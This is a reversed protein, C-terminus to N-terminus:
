DVEWRLKVILNFRVYGLPGFVDNSFGEDTEGGWVIVGPELEGGIIFYKFQIPNLGLGCSLDFGDLGDSKITEGLSIIPNRYEWTMGTMQFGLFLYNGVFTYHPTLYFNADMGIQWIGVGGRLAGGVLGNKQIPADILRFNLDYTVENKGAIKIDEYTVGFGRLGYFDDSKVLGVFPSVGVSRAFDAFASSRGSPPRYPRGYIDYYLSDQNPPRNLGTTDPPYRQKPPDPPAPVERSGTNDDSAAAMADSLKGRSRSTQSPGACGTLILAVTLLFLSVMPLM